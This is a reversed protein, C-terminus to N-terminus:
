RPHPSSENRCTIEEKTHNFNQVKQGSNLLQIYGAEALTALFRYMTSKNMALDRSIAALEKPREAKALYEPITIAHRVSLNM